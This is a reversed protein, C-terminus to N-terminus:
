SRLWAMWAASRCACGPDSKWQCLSFPPSPPPAQGSNWSLSLPPPPVRSRRPPPPLPRGLPRVLTKNHADKFSLCWLAACATACFEAAHAFSGLGQLILQIAGSARIHAKLAPEAKALCWIANCGSEMIEMSRSHMRMAAVIRQVGSDGGGGGGEGGTAADAIFGARRVLDRDKGALLGFNSFIGLIVRNLEVETSFAGLAALLLSFVEGDALADLAERARARAGEGAGGGGAEPQQAAGGDQLLMSIVGCVGEVVQM